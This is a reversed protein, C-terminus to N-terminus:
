KVKEKRMGRLRNIKSFFSYFFWYTCVPKKTTKVRHTIRKSLNEAKLKLFFASIKTGV